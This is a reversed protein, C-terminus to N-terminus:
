ENWIGPEAGARQGQRYLGPHREQEQENLVWPTSDTSIHQGHFFCCMSESFGWCCGWLAWNQLTRLARWTWQCSTALAWSRESSARLARIMIEGDSSQAMMALAIQGNLLGMNEQFITGTVSPREWGECVQSQWSGRCEGHLQGQWVLMRKWNPKLDNGQTSM